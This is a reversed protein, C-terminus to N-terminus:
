AYYRRPPPSKIGSMSHGLSAQLLTYLLKRRDRERQRERERESETRVQLPSLSEEVNDLENFPKLIVAPM